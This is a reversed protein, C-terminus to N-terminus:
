FKQGIAHSLHFLIVVCSILYEILFVDGNVINMFGEVSSAGNDHLDLWGCLGFGIEGWDELRHYEEWYDVLM